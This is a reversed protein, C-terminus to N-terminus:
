KNTINEYFSEPCAGYIKKFEQSFTTIVNEQTLKKYWYILTKQKHAEFYDQFHHYLGNAILFNNIKDFVKFFDLKKSEDSGFTYSTESERRYFILPEKILSVKDAQMFSEYFFVNDEFNINEPFFINNSKLFKTKYIKNWPTVCIRFLFNKTDKFSFTCNEFKEPFLDLTMYPDNQSVKNTKENHINISCMTITSDFSSANAYLKEYMQTHVYDDSDVFGVYEGSAEIIGRNRAASQGKNLQTIIKIRNDNEAYTNLITSSNDTSGDDVCIIEIDKLTQSVVSNLCQELYKATNYVPIIISVKVKSSM